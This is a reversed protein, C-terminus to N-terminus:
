DLSGAASMSQAHHSKNHDYNAIAINTAITYYDTASLYGETIVGTCDRDAKTNTGYVASVADSMEIGKDLILKMVEHPIIIGPSAGLGEVGDRSLLYAFGTVIYTDPGEGEGPILVEVGGELGAAIDIDSYVELLRRARNRAGLLTEANTMPQDSVGSPVKKGIVVAEHEPYRETFANEVANIKVPTDSGVAVKLREPM